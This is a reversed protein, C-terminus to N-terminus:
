ASLQIDKLSKDHHLNEGQPVKAPGVYGADQLSSKSLVAPAFLSKKKAANAQNARRELISVRAQRNGGDKGQKLLTITISTEGRQCVQNAVKYLSSLEAASYHTTIRGSKHGLLDQRDEFSAGTARLRRGYTHKLDHVWLFPLGAKECAVIWGDNLMSKLPKGQYTFVYEPHKGRQEEISARASENLIVLREEGNKVAGEPILFVSGGPIEPVDVEWEWRLRCVETERCGTNVKFLAMPRIHEPLQMFLRDQEEWSLPYPKRKDDEPLLKIKPAFALWSLGYQDIWERHALNLIRRVAQLPYNITRSKNGRKQKEVIFKQLAGMHVKDIAMDGIYPDIISLARAYREISRLHVNEVLFKTAAERFLRAPRVGYISAQRIEDM